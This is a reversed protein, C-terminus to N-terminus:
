SRSGSGRPGRPPGKGRDTGPSRNPGMPRARQLAAPRQLPRSVDALLLVSRVLDEVAEDLTTPPELTDIMAVLAEADELDAPDFAAFLVALPEVLAPDPRDMLDPFHEMAAAFGTVWPLTLAQAFTPGAHPAEDDALSAEHGSAPEEDEEEDSGLVWPDFWQRERIAQDLFAHRHRVLRRFVQADDGAPWPRGDVDAVWPWWQTEPLAPSQLLVGCLYGDIASLDLPELPAPARELLDLLTAIDQDSLPPVRRDAASPPRPRHPSAPQGPKM